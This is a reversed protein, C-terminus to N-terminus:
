RKYRRAGAERGEMESQPKFEWHILDGQFQYFKYHDLWHHAFAIWSDCRRVPRFGDRWCFEIVEDRSLEEGDIWISVAQPYVDYKGNIKRIRGVELNAQFTQIHTCKWRGLLRMTKQRPNVYCHCMEGVKPRRARGLRVTHTKTGDEVFPAFQRKFGLLM